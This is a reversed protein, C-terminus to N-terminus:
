GISRLEVFAGDGPKGSMLTAAQSATVMVYQEPKGITEAVAKSLSALRATGKDEPRAASTALRLLPM